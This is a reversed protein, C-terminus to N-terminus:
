EFVEQLTNIEEEETLPRGLALVRDTVLGLLRARRREPGPCRTKITERLTGLYEVIDETREPLSSDIQEKLRRALSPGAGGTSIGITLSGHQVLAPFIFSCDETGDASNVPIKRERCLLSIHRNLASDDTAAIVLEACELDGDEFPREVATIGLARTEASIAPAIVTLEPGFPLLKSIKRRAVAGAGVVVCRKGALDTFLPFYAM